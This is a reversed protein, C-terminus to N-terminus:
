AAEVNIENLNVIPKKIKEPAEISVSVVFWGEIAKALKTGVLDAERASCALIRVRSGDNMEVIYNTM